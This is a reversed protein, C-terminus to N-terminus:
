SLFNRSEHNLRTAKDPNLFPAVLNVAVLLLSGLGLVILAWYSRRGLPTDVNDDKGGGGPTASPPVRGLSQPPIPDTNCNVYVGGLAKAIADLNEADQRSQFDGIQRGEASGIGVVVSRRISRPLEFGEVTDESDGDTVLLLATSRDPWGDAYEACVEELAASITTLEDDFLVTSLNRNNLCHRIVKWDSTDIALPTTEDAFVVLSTRPLERKEGLLVDRILDAAREGRSKNGEPGADRLNMSQSCDLLILLRDTEENNFVFNLEAPHSSDLSLKALGLCVLSFGAVRTAALTSIRGWPVHSAHFLLGRLRVCRRAHLVEAIVMLLLAAILIPVVM